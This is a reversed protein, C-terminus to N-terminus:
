THKWSFLILVNFQLQSEGQKKSHRRVKNKMYLQQRHNYKSDSAQQFYKELPNDSDTRCLLCLLRQSGGTNQNRRKTMVGNFSYYLKTLVPSPSLCECTMKNCRSCVACGCRQVCWHLTKLCLEGLTGLGCIWGVVSERSGVAYLSKMYPVQANKSKPIPAKKTVWSTYYRAISSVWNWNRPWSSGKSFPYAVWELTWPSEQHSVHYLIQRYHLLGPNLGQTSFIGQLLAHCSVATNQGPSDGHVSSGPLSCDMPNCLTLCSQAVLCLVPILGM